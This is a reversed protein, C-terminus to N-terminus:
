SNVKAFNADILDKELIEDFVRHSGLQEQPVFYRKSELAGYNVQQVLQIAYPWKSDLTSNRRNSGDTPDYPSSRRPFNGWELFSTFKLEHDVKSPKYPLIDTCCFVLAM